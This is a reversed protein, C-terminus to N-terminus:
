KGRAILTITAPGAPSVTVVTGKPLRLPARWSYTRKYRPKYDRLWLLPEISGDPLQATVRFSAGEPVISPRIAILTTNAALKLTGRLTIPQGRPPVPKEDHLHPVSPL